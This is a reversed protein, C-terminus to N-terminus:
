EYASRLLRLDDDHAAYSIHIGCTLDTFSVNLGPTGIQLNNANLVPQNEASPQFPM